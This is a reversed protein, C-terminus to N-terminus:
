TFKIPSSAQFEDKVNLEMKLQEFIVREEDSVLRGCLNSKDAPEEVFNWDSTLVWRYQKPLRDLLEAWLQCRERASTSAYVSLVAIDGGPTSHLLVWLARGCRSYGSSTVLHTLRPAIWM